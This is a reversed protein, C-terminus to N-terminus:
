RPESAPLEFVFAAGPPGEDELGLTGGHEQLIRYSISLGLGTGRGVGKTTFFPQFLKSRAERPVGAGTDRFVVKVATATALTQITLRRARERPNDAMADFANLALNICVQMLEDEVARVAPLDPALEYRLEIKSSRKDHRVIDVAREIVRNVDCPAREVSRPRVLDSMQRVIRSIRDIHERILALKKKAYDDCAKRELSQAAMSLALLPNGIEHAVGAALVGVAALKEAQRVQEQLQKQETIDISRMRILRRNSAPLRSLATQCVVERGDSRVYTFEFSCTEGALVRRNEEDMLDRAKQGGSQLETCFDIPGMRLLQERTFGFLREAGQNADVFRDADVDLVMIAETAHEVLARYREESERLAAEARQLDSVDLEVCIAGKPEGADGVQAVSTSLLEITSGDKKIGRLPMNKIVVERRRENEAIVERLRVQSEETLFRWGDIGVVEERAYGMTQLWFDSVDRVRGAPDFAMLMVPAQTCLNRFRQESERLEAASRRLEEEMRKRETIDQGTGAVRLPAGEGDIFVEGRGFVTRVDGDQRRVRHEFSFPGGHVLAEALVARAAARDDEHVLDIYGELTAGFERPHAGYIRCLEDSWVLTDSCCDWEWSGIHGIRQAEALRAESRRLEEEVRRRDTVDHGTVLMTPQGDFDVVDVSCEVSRPCGEAHLFRVTTRKPRPADALAGRDDPHLLECFSRGVLDDKRRGLLACAAPNVYILEQGQILAILSSVTEALGLFSAQEHRAEVGARARDPSM